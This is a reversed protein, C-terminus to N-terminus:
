SWGTLMTQEPIGLVKIVRKRSNCGVIDLLDDWSIENWKRSAWPVCRQKDDTGHKKPTYLPSRLYASLPVEKYTITGEERESITITHVGKSKLNNLIWTSISYGRGINHFHKDRRRFSNYVGGYIKGEGDGIWEGGPPYKM